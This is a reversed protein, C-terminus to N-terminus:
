GKQHQYGQLYGHSSCTSLNKSLAKATHTRTFGSVPVNIYRNRSVTYGLSKLFFLLKETWVCM